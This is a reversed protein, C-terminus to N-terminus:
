KKYNLNIMMTYGICVISEALDYVKLNEIKM